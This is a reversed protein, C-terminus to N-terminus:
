IHYNWNPTKLYAVANHQHISEFNEVKISYKKIACEDLMIAVDRIIDEVFKPNDYAAETVFKEDPRKLLPYLPVSGCEELKRCMSTIDIVQEGDVFDCRIVSRQNHAGKGVGLSELYATDKSLSMEKSCPCLSATDVELRYILTIEDFISPSEHQKFLGILSVKASQYSGGIATMPSTKEYLYEFDLKVYCDRSELDRSLRELYETISRLNIEAHQINPVAQVFRSMHTGKFNHPLATYASLTVIVPQLFEGQRLMMPLKAGTIGVRDISKNRIDVTKQIDPLACLTYDEKFPKFEAVNTLSGVILQPKGNESSHGNM